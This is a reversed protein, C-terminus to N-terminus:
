DVTGSGSRYPRVQLKAARLEEQLEREHLRLSKLATRSAFDRAGHAEAKQKLTALDALQKEIQEVSRPTDTKDATSM